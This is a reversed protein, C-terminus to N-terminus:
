SSIEACRTISAEAGIDVVARDFLQGGCDITDAAGDRADIHDSGDGGSITEPGTGGIIQDEGDLGMLQLTFPSGVLVDAFQSGFIAEVDRFIRDDDGPRGDHGPEALSVHVGATAYGYNATDLGVGGEFTVRSAADTALANYRDNGPGGDVQVERPTAITAVDPGIGLDLEIVRVARSCRVTHTDVRMCLPVGDIKIPANADHIMVGRSGEVTVLNTEGVDDQLLVRKLSGNQHLTAGDAVSPVTVAAVIAVAASLMIRNM